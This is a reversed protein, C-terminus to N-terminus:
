FGGLFRQGRQWVGGGENSGFETTKTDRVVINRYENSIPDRVLMYMLSIVTVDSGVVESAMYSLSAEALM